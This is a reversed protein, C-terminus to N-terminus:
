IDDWDIDITLTIEKKILHLRRADNEWVSQTIISKSHEQVYTHVKKREYSSLYPLIVVKGTEQVFDIKSQIFSHLKQDKKELYDNVELHITIYWQIDQSLLLKLIHTISELNKWHPGIVIHSDPTELKIKYINEAEKEINLSSIEIAMKQFFTETKWQINQEWM